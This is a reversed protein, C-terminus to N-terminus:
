LKCDLGYEAKYLRKYEDPNESRLEERQEAPVENLTKFETPKGSSQSILENPKQAVPIMSLTTRLVEIGSKKGLDVFHAQKDATIRKSTVALQVERDIEATRITEIEARLTESQQAQNQIEQIKALIEAEPANDALGLTVAILKMTYTQNQNQIETDTNTDVVVPLLTESEGAALNIIQGEHYLQIADDNEGIDVLSIEFLKSKTVTARTQGPLLHAPDVSTEIVNIGISAMRIIGSEYKNKIQVAFEDKEDFRPTIIIKDGDIRLNEAIGIPLIEDKRGQWPRNHMWLLIPNKLYQSIDLGASLVRFGRNNLSSTSIAIEKMKNKILVHCFYLVSIFWVRFIYVDYIYINIIFVVTIVTNVYDNKM